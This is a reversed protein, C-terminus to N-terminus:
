GTYAPIAELPTAPASESRSDSGGSQGPRANATSATSATTGDTPPTNSSPTNSSPTTPIPRSTTSTTPTPTSTSTSSSTSAPTSTSTSSSTSAPTSTTTASTASTSTALTSTTTTTPAAALTSPPAVDCGVGEPARVSTLSAAGIPVSFGLDGFRVTVTAAAGPNWLTVAARGDPSCTAAAELGSPVSSLTTTLAGSGAPAFRAVTALVDLDLNPEWSSTVPDITLVGRCDTCGGSHPGHDPDLALNWYLSSSAWNAYDRVVLTAQGRFAQSRTGNWDGGSCETQWIELNPWAAHIGNNAAVQDGGYCHLAAGAVPYGGDTASLIDLAAQPPAPGTCGGPPTATCWNHDWVLVRTDLGAAALKPGLADTVRIQQATDMTMTPADLKIAAPENQISVRSVPVGAARYETLFRTLYDAYVDEYQEDLVGFLYNDTTKMWAPASWSSAIFTVAPNITMIQRAIPIIEARDADISFKSLTPDPEDSDDLSTLTRSFDSSGIVLRVVSLGGEDPAFLARLAADREAIPLQALLHASADTLAAGVGYLHQRPRHPDVTVQAPDAADLPTVDLDTTVVRQSGDAASVVAGLTLPPAPEGGAPLVSGTVAITAAVLCAALVTNGALRFRRTVRGRSTRM